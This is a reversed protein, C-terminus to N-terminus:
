YGRRNTRGAKVDVNYREPSLLVQIGRDRNLQSFVQVAALRKKQHPQLNSAQQCVQTYCADYESKDVFQDLLGGFGLSGLGFILERSFKARDQLYGGHPDLKGQVLAILLKLLDVYGLSAKGAALGLIGQTQPQGPQPDQVPEQYDTCDFYTFLEAIPKRELKQILDRNEAAQRSEDHGWMAEQRKRLSFDRRISLYDLFHRRDALEGQSSLNLVGYQLVKESQYNPKRVAMAGLRYGGERTAAPFSFYNAVTSAVRLAMDGENCFLYAEEFRRISSRLTNGRGSIISETSIDPAVLVLRGLRFVDGVESPPPAARDSMDLTSISQRDFVDSLIRVAQTVVSAGMSYGIFSLRIRPKDWQGNTQQVVARNLQRIFEVLDLAGYQDARHVDRFYNSLRLLLLTLIPISLGIALFLLILFALLLAVFRLGESIVLLVGFVLGILATLVGFKSSQSILRLLQPLASQAINLSDKFLKSVPESSWRYCLFLRAADTPPYKEALYEATQAYREAIYDANTNYGHIQILIEVGGAASEASHQTIFEAMADIGHQPDGGECAIPPQEVNVPATSSVLYSKFRPQDTPGIPRIDLLYPNFM